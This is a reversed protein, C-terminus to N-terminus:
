QGFGGRGVPMLKGGGPLLYTKGGLPANEPLKADYSASRGGDVIRSVLEDPDGGCLAALRSDAGIRWICGEGLSLSAGDIRGELTSGKTLELSVSSGSEAIVDGSLAQSEM